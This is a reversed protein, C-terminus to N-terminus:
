KGAIVTEFLPEMTRSELTLRWSPTRRSGKPTFPLRGVTVPGNLLMPAWDRKWLLCSGRPLTRPIPILSRTTVAARPSPMWARPSVRRSSKTRPILILSGQKTTVAVVRPSPMWARPVVRRSSPPQPESRESAPPFLFERSRRSSRVGQLSQPAQTRDAKSAEMKERQQKSPRERPPARTKPNRPLWWITSAVRLLQLPQYSQIATCHWKHKECLINSSSWICYTAIVCLRANSCTDIRVKAVPIEVSRYSVASSKSRERTRM